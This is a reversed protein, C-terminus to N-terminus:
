KQGQSILSLLEGRTRNQDRFAGIVESTITTAGYAKIGRMEMCLHRAQLIVAVGKPELAEQLRSATAMTIREQNQLGAAHFRLCRALKSLGVIRRDPIYAITGVGFFPVLHHECISYFPVDRQVIMQDYNEKSFSTFDFEEPVLFQELFRVYRRPTDVLGERDIDHGFVKLLERLHEEAAARAHPDLM